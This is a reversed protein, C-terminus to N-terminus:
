ARAPGFARRGRIESDDRRANSVPRINVPRLRDSGLQLDYEVAQGLRLRIFEDNPVDVEDFFVEFGDDGRIFGWGDPRILRVIVGRM